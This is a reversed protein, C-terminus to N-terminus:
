VSQIISQVTKKVDRSVLPYGVSCDVLLLLLSKTSAGLILGSNFMVIFAIPKCLM